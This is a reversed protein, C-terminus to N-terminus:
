IDKFQDDKRGDRMSLFLFCLCVFHILNDWIRYEDQAKNNTKQIGKSTRILVLKHLAHPAILWTTFCKGCLNPSGLNLAWFGPLFRESHNCASMLGAYPLHPLLGGPRVSWGSYWFKCTKPWHCHSCLLLQTKNRAYLCLIASVCPHMCARMCARVELRSLYIMRNWHPLSQGQENPSVIKWTDTCHFFSTYKVSQKTHPLSMMRCSTVIEKSYDLTWAVLFDEM